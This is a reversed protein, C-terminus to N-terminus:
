GHRSCTWGFNGGEDAGPAATILRRQLSQRRQNIVFKAANGAAIHPVLTRSIRELGRGQNVFGIKMQHIGVTGVPLIPCMKEGRGGLDHAPNEYVERPRVCRLLAAAPDPGDVM